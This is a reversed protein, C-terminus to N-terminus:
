HLTVIDTAKTVPPPSYPPADYFKDLEDKMPKRAEESVYTMHGGKFNKVLIRDSRGIGALDLESQHFPTVVDYYGHLVVIKITPDAMLIAEIEPLSTKPMGIGPREWNWAKFSAIGGPTNSTRYIASARYNLFDPLIDKIGKDFALDEYYSPNYPRKGNVFPVSMRADYVNFAHNGKFLALFDKQGINLNSEWSSASVGTKDQMDQLFTAGESSQSFANWTTKVDRGQAIELAPAYKEKVFQRLPEVSEPITALGSVKSLKYYDALMAYAPIYGACSTSATEACNSYYSLIPANLILGSLVNADKGSKDPEFLSKGADEMLKALIPVRIGSYSEGYLYKQSLQRNNVNVYRVIFDRMLKADRDPGWFERNTHPVTAQSYSSGPPDVFVLDTKDLLTEENDIMPFSSPSKLMASAPIAPEDTRLRKPAFSGLHLWISPQGPGGNFFFTVPRKESPLGDRTYAMYFIAAQPYKKDKDGPPYAILHGASATFKVNKGGIKMSNRKVSPVESIASLALAGGGSGDYSTTNNVTKNQPALLDFAEDEFGAGALLNGAELTQGIM